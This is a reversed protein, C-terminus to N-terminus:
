STHDVAPRQKYLRRTVREIAILRLWRPAVPLSVAAFILGAPMLRRVVSPRNRALARFADAVVTDATLVNAPTEHGARENFRTSVPGPCLAVVRIGADRCEAWLAETFHLVFSKSAAYVNYYPVPFFAATSAVNIIAGRRNALMSPLYLGTLAVLAEVNVRIVALQRDLPTDAFSGAEGFGASNVLIDPILGSADSAAKLRAPADPEALDLTVVHTRVQHRAGLDAALASLRDQDVPLATLVLDVSRSALERAFAEGIGSSAGTVLAVRGKFEM